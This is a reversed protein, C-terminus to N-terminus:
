TKIYFQAWSHTIWVTLIWLNPFKNYAVDSGLDGRQSKPHEKYSQSYKLSSSQQGARVQPNTRQQLSALAWKLVPEWRQWELWSSAWVQRGLPYMQVLTEVQLLYHWWGALHCLEAFHWVQSSLGPVLATHVHTPSIAKIPSAAKKEGQAPLTLKM